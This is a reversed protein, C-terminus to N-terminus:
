SFYMNTLMIHFLVGLPYGLAIALAIKALVLTDENKHEHTLTYSYTEKIAKRVKFIFAAMLPLGLPYWIILAAFLYILWFSILGRALRVAAPRGILIPLTKRGAARDRELDCTNNSLMFNSVILMMPLTKAFVLPDPDGTLALYVGFPVLGGLTFGSLVEGVPLFSTRIRNGSYTLTIVAGALGVLLPGIGTQIVVYIGLIGAAMLFGLGAYFAPKPDEVNHYALPGDIESVVNDKTDNGGVYDYYDNLVDVSANMFPPILLLCISLIVPLSKLNEYALILGLVTPMLSSLFVAGPTTMDIIM